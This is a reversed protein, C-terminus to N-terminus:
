GQTMKVTTSLVTGGVTFRIDENGQGIHLCKCKGFRFLMHWKESWEILKSLYHQLHQRDGSKIMRCVETDNAFALVKSTIYDDWDNVYILFLIRGLVSEQSVGYLDM